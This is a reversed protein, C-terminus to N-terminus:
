AKKLWQLLYMVIQGVGEGWIVTIQRNSWVEDGRGLTMHYKFSGKRFFFLLSYSVTYHCVSNFYIVCVNIRSRSIFYFFMSAFFNNLIYDCRTKKNQMRTKKFHAVTITWDNGLYKSVQGFFSTM